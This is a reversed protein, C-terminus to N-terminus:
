LEHGSQGFGLLTQAYGEQSDLFRNYVDGTNSSFKQHLLNGIETSQSGLLNSKTTHIVYSMMMACMMCM